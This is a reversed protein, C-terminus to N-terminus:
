INCQLYAESMDQYNLELLMQLTTIEIVLVQSIHIQMYQEKSKIMIRM